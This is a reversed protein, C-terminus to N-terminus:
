EAGIIKQIIDNLQMNTIIRSLELREEDTLTAIVEKSRMTKLMKELKKIFELEKM